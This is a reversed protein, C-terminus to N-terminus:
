VAVHCESRGQCGEFATVAYNQGHDSIFIRIAGAPLYQRRLCLVADNRFWLTLNRGRMAVPVPATAFSLAAMGVGFESTQRAFFAM